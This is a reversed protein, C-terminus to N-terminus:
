ANEQGLGVVYTVFLGAGTDPYNNSTARNFWRPSFVAVGHRLGERWREFLLHERAQRAPIRDAGPLQGQFCAETLL